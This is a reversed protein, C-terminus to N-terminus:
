RGIYIFLNKTPLGKGLAKGEFHSNLGDDDEFPGESIAIRITYQPLARSFRLHLDATLEVRRKVSVYDPVYLVKLVTPAQSAVRLGWSSQSVDLTDQLDRYPPWPGQVASQSSTTEEHVWASSGLAWPIARGPQECMSLYENINFQRVQGSIGALDATRQEILADRDRPNRSTGDGLRASRGSISRVESGDATIEGVWRM